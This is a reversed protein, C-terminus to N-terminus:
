KPSIVSYLRGRNTRPRPKWNFIIGSLVFLVNLNNYFNINQDLRMENVVKLNSISIFRIGPYPFIHEILPNYHSFCCLLSNLFFILSSVSVRLTVPSTQGAYLLVRVSVSTSLHVLLAAAPARVRERRVVRVLQPRVLRGAQLREQEAFERRVGDYM